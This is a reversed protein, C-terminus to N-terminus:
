HGLSPPLTCSVILMCVLSSRHKSNEKRRRTRHKRVTRTKEKRKKENDKELVILKWEDYCILLFCCFFFFFSTSSSFRQCFSCCVRICWVCKLNPNKTTTRRSNQRSELSHSYSVPANDNKRWCRCCLLFCTLCRNSQWWSLISPLALSRVVIADDISMACLQSSIFGIYIRNVHKMCQERRSERDIM